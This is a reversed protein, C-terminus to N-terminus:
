ASAKLNEIVIRFLFVILTIKKELVAQLLKRNYPQEKITHSFFFYTKGPILAEVPVEKVGMLIDCGQMDYGLPIGAQQYDDDTFCRIPSPEVLLEFDFDKLIKKCQKPALPVRTDPPTKRERIIGIKM